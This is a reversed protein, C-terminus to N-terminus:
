VKMTNFLTIQETLSDAASTIQAANSLPNGGATSTATHTLGDKIYGLAASLVAIMEATGGEIEIKGGPHIALRMSGNNLETTGATTPTCAQATQVFGPIFICDSYDHHRTPTVKIAGTSSGEFWAACNKDCVLLVGQTGVSVPQYFYVSSSMKLQLVEVAPIILAEEDDEYVMIQADVKQSAPTTGVVKAPIAVAMNNIKKDVFANLIQMLDM